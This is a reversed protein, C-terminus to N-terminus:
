GIRYHAALATLGQILMARGTRRRLGLDQEALQLSSARICVAEVMRRAPGCASLAAEVRRGAALAQDGPEARTASGGGSRPLADWRMTLSPGRLAAEADLSLRQAAAVQAPSLWPRGAEDKHRALWGIASQGLNARRPTFRGDREAVLAVGEIMGPRGPPSTADTVPAPRPLWGGGPRVRLGPQDILDRFTAENLTLLVRTRRNAGVRLVYGHGVGDIWAGNRALLRRAKALDSM